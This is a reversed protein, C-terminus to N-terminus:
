PKGRKAGASAFDRLRSREWWERSMAKRLAAPGALDAPPAAAYESLLTSATTQAALHADNRARLWATFPGCAELADPAIFGELPADTGELDNVAYLMECVESASLGGPAARASLNQLVERPPLASPIAWATGHKRGKGVFYRESNAPRSLLPKVLDVHEFEHYLVYLLHVSFTTHVDLVKLVMNGGQRLTLLAALVECLVVRRLKTEMGEFDTEYILGGDGMALHVGGGDTGEQITLMLEVLNANSTIDGDGTEGTVCFAKAPPAHARATKHFANLQWDLTCNDTALSIGWGTGRTKKCFAADRVPASSAGADAGRKTGPQAEGAGRPLSLFAPTHLAWLVYETWSGPAGCLDVFYYQGGIEVDDAYHVVHAEQDIDAFKLAARTRFPVCRHHVDSLPDAYERARGFVEEEVEGWAARLATRKKLAGQDVVSRELAADTAAEARCRVQTAGTAVLSCDVGVDFARMTAEYNAM